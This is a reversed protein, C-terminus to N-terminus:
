DRSQSITSTQGSIKNLLWFNTNFAVVEKADNQLYCKQYVIDNCIINNIQM